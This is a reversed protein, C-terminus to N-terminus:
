RGPRRGHAECLRRDGRRPRRRPLEAETGCASTRFRRWRDRPWPPTRTTAGSRSTPWWRRSPRRVARAPAANEDRIHRVVGARLVSSKGVGSPGYLVGFRNARANNAILSSTARAASSSSPTPGRHLADAGPVAVVRARHRFPRRRAPRDDRDAARRSAAGDLESRSGRDLVRGPRPRLDRGDRSRWAEVELPDPHSVVAWSNNQKARDKWIRHLMVRLNWDRLSYGLFLYHCRHMRRAVAAPLNRVVETRTLCEIYDDETVVYSDETVLDHRPRVPAGRRAAERGRSARHPHRGPVQQRGAAGEAQRRTGTHRFLGLDPDDENAVYTLVDIPEGRAAFARELADDYNTTIVLPYEAVTTTRPRVGADPGAGRAGAHGPLRPRLRRPPLRLPERGGLRSFVWQAVRVLDCSRTPAPTSSSSPWTGPWSARQEAAPQGPHLRALHRDGILNVGAGLFPTLRGKGLERTLHAYFVEDPADAM